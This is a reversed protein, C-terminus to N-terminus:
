SKLMALEGTLLLIHGVEEKLIADIRAKELPDAVMGQMYAVLVIFDREFDLARRLIDRSSERGTIHEALDEKAGSVFAGLALMTAAATPEGAAQVLGEPTWQHGSFHSKMAAFLSEHDDEMAALRQLVERSRPSGVAAAAQRYFGAADREIQRAMDFVEDATLEVGM